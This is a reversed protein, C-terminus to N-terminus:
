GCDVSEFVWCEVQGDPLSVTRELLASLRDFLDGIRYQVM